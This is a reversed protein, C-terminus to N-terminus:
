RFAKKTLFITSHSITLHCLLLEADQVICRWGTLRCRVAKWWRHPVWWRWTSWGQWWVPRSRGAGCWIGPESGGSEGQMLAWFFLLVLSLKRRSLSACRCHTPSFNPSCSLPLARIGLMMLSVSAFTWGACLHSTFDLTYWTSKLASLSQGFYYIVSITVGCELQYLNLTRKWCRGLCVESVILFVM